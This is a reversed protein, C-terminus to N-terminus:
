TKEVIDHSGRKIDFRDPDKDLHLVFGLDGYKKNLIKAMQQVKHRLTPHVFRTVRLEILWMLAKLDGEIENPVRYGMPLYYQRDVKSIKLQNTNQKQDKLLRIAEKQLNKPLQKLYWPEFDFRESLLPMEQIVARHRQLDRFSGFDLLFDFEIVGCKRIMRPPETKVPRTQMIKKFEGMMRKNLRDTRCAFESWKKPDFYYDNSVWSKNYTETNPYLKQRFSHPHAEKLADEIAEAVERVEELPHHRLLMLNDAGQRLNTHWSINTSSGAPLFGRIIDFARAKIAKAYIKEDEGNQRPFEKTLAEILQPTAKIYFSRWKELIAKSKKTGVPDIFPQTAFDIYRTSSEQGNYLPWHQIAKAVLMSVGEIFITTTGCDGISKDGYGVYYMDMFDGSGGRKNLVELHGDLGRTSRSHLAQIMAIDEPSLLAGTDLVIIKAGSPTARRIHKLEQIKPM